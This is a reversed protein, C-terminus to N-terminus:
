KKTQGRVYEGDEESLKELAVALVSGDDKKLKVQGGEFSQFTAVVSFKGSKDNWTRPQPASAIASAVAGGGGNEEHPDVADYPAAEIDLTHLVLKDNAPPITILLKAQPLCFYRQDLTLGKQGDSSVTGEMEPMEPLQALERGREDILTGQRPLLQKAARSRSSSAPM